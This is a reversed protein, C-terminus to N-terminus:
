CLCSLCIKWGPSFPTVIWWGPEIEMVVVLGGIRWPHLDLPALSHVTDALSFVDVFLAFLTYSKGDILWVTFYRCAAAPNGVFSVHNFAMLALYKVVHGFIFELM